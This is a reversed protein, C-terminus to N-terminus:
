HHSDYGKLMPYNVKPSTSNKMAATKLIRRKGYKIFSEVNLTALLHVKPEAIVGEPIGADIEVISRSDTTSKNIRFLKTKRGEPMTRMVEFSAIMMTAAGKQVKSQKVSETMARLTTM